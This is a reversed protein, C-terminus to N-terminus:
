SVPLIVKAETGGGERTSLLFKGGHGKIVRDVMTLGMGTGYTKTTFFPDKAREINDKNIGLGSDIITIVINADQPHASISMQGGDPMAEVANRVLHLVVQQMGHRDANIMLETGPFDFKCEIGQKVMNNHVLLVTKEILSNLPVREKKYETTSVFDFLDELTSELRDTEKIVVNLYKQWEVDTTKKSLIRSVGGISTIPNRIAHVLQAAMHGLAAYREAEVLLDKNIDLEHNLAELESIKKQMEMYLHSHEIALSAQSAFLELSNILGDALPERTVFNDAIIVGFAKSPSFLPVVVFSDEGLLAILEHPVPLFIDETAKRRRDGNITFAEEGDLGYVKRREYPVPLCGNESSVKISRREQASKILINESNSIHVRISKVLRNVERDEMDCDKRLNKIIQMFSLERQEIESWVKGAESRCNPGIAMRGALVKGEEDFLALFARNFRLGENATIGVLIAQLIGDLEITSLYATNMKLSLQHLLHIRFHAKELDQQYKRNEFILRRKELTKKVVFFIEHLQSPKSLYDDAGKRICEMAIHLDSVGSLMIVAVDPYEEVIKPLLSVGDIDPLGIDLLILAVKKYHLIQLLNAASATADVPLGQEELYLRLPERIGPDDDVIVIIEDKQLLQDNSLSIHKRFGSISEM